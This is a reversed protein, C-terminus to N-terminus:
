SVVKLTGLIKEKVGEFGQDTPDAVFVVVAVYQNEDAPLFYSVFQGQGSFEYMLGEVGGLQATSLSKTIEGIEGAAVMEAEAAAQLSTFEGYEKVIFSLAMGDFFETAESQTPGVYTLIAGQVGAVEEQVDMIQPYDFAFWDNEYSEWASEDSVAEVFANTPPTTDQVPPAPKYFVGFYVVMLIVLFVAGVIYFNNRM